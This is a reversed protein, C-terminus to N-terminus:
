PIHAVAAIGLWAEVRSGTWVAMDDILFRNATLAVRGEIFGQVALWDVLPQEWALRLGLAAFPMAATASSAFGSATGSIWGAALDTCAVARGVHLCPLLSLESRSVSVTGPPVALDDASDLALGATLSLAGHKVRLGLVAAATGRTSTAAGGLMALQWASATGDDRTLEIAPMDLSPPVEVAADPPRAEVEPPSALVVAIALALDDVLVACSAAALARHGAPRGAVAISLSASAGSPSAESTVAITTAAVATFPDRGVLAVVRERVGECAGSEELRTDARAIRACVVLLLAVRIV